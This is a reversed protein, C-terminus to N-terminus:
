IVKTAVAWLYFSEPAIVKLKNLINLDEPLDVDKIKNLDKKDLKIRKIDVDLRDDRILSAICAVKSADEKANM